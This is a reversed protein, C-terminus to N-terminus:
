LYGARRLRAEYSRDSGNAPPRAAAEDEAREARGTEDRDEYYGSEEAAAEAELAAAKSELIAIATALGGFRLRMVEAAARLKAADALDRPAANV